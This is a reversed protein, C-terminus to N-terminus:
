KRMEHSSPRALLSDEGSRIVWGVTTTCSDSFRLFLITWRWTHDWGCNLIRREHSENASNVIDYRAKFKIGSQPSWVIANILRAAILAAGAPWRRVAARKFWFFETHLCFVSDLSDYRIERVYTCNAFTHLIGRGHILILRIFIKDINHTVMKAHIHLLFAFLFPILSLSKEYIIFAPPSRRSRLSFASYYFFILLCLIGMFVFHHM